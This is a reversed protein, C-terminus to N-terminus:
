ALTTNVPITIGNAKVSGHFLINNSINGQVANGIVSFLDSIKAIMKVEIDVAQKGNIQVVDIASVSAVQQDKYLIDGMVNDITVSVDTPNIITFTAYAEPYFFSGGLRIKKFIFEVSNVFNIGRLLFYLALAGAGILIAKGKAM